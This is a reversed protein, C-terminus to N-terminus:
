KKQNNAGPLPIESTQYLFDDRKMGGDDNEKKSRGRYIAYATLSTTEGPVIHFTCEGDLSVSTDPEQDVTSDSGGEANGDKKTNEADSRQTFSDFGLLRGKQDKIYAVEIPNVGNNPDVLSFNAYANILQPEEASGAATPIVPGEEFLDDDDGGGGNGGAVGDADAEVFERWSGL